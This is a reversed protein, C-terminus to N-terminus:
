TSTQKSNCNMGTAGLLNILGSMLILVVLFAESNLGMLLPVKWFMKTMKDHTGM